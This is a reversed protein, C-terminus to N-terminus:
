IALNNQNCVISFDQNVFVLPQVHHCNKLLKGQIGANLHTNDM